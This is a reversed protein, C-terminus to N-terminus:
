THRDAAGGVLEVDRFLEHVPAGSDVARQIDTPNRPDDAPGALGNPWRAWPLEDEPWPMAGGTSVDGMKSDALLATLTELTPLHSGLGALWRPNWSHIIAIQRARTAIDSPLWWAWVDTREHQGVTSNVDYTSLPGAVLVDGDADLVLAQAASQVSSWLVSSWTSTRGVLLGGTTELHVESCVRHAVNLSRNQKVGITTM